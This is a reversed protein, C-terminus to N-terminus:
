NVAPKAVRVQDGQALSDPPNNVVRDGPRLGSALVVRSGLDTGISVAKM